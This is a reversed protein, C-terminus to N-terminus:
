SRVIGAAARAIRAALSAPRGIGVQVVRGRRRKQSSGGSIMSIQVAAGVRTTPM